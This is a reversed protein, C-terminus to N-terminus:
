HSAYLLEKSSTSVTLFLWCCLSVARSRCCIWPEPLSLSLCGVVGPFKILSHSVAQLWLLYNSVHPLQMAITSVTLSLWCVQSVILFM